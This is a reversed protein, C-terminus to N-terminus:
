QASCPAGGMAHPCHETPADQDIGASVHYTRCYINNGLLSSPEVTPSSSYELPGTPDEPLEACNSLCAQTSEFYSPEVNGATSSKTCTADMLSCFSVCNSGCKGEGLPGASKCYLFAESEAFHAQRIRCEVSNVNEDGPTGAPLRKCVAICQDFTRYQEYKGKCNQVVSDCYIECRSPQDPPDVSGAGAMVGDAGAGATVEGAGAQHGAGAEHADSSHAGAVNVAGGSNPTEPDPPS